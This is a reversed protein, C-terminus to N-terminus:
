WALIWAPFLSRKKWYKKACVAEVRHRNENNQWRCASLGCIIFHYPESVMPSVRKRILNTSRMEGKGKGSEYVTGNECCIVKMLTNKESSKKNKGCGVEPESRRGTEFCERLADLLRQIPWERKWMRSARLGFLGKKDPWQLVRM